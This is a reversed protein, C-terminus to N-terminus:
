DRLTGVWIASVGGDRGLKLCLWIGAGLGMFLPMWRQSLIRKNSLHPAADAGHRGRLGPGLDQVGCGWAPLLAMTPPAPLLALPAGPLLPPCLCQAHLTACTCSPLAPFGLLCLVYLLGCPWGYLFLLWKSLPLPLGAARQVCSQPLTDPYAGWLRWWADGPEGHGRTYIPPVWLEPSGSHLSPATALRWFGELAEPGRDAAQTM